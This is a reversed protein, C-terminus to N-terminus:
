GGGRGQLKAKGLAKEWARSRERKWGLGGGRNGMAGLGWPSHSLVVDKREM